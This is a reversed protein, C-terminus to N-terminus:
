PKPEAQWTCAHCLVLTQARHALVGPNPSQASPCLTQARHALVGPNPSQWAGHTHAHMHGCRDRNEGRYAVQVFERCLRRAGHQVQECRWVVGIFTPPM